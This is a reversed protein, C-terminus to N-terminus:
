QFCEPFQFYKVHMCVFTNVLTVACTTIRMSIIVTDSNVVTHRSLTPLKTLSHHSIIVFYMIRISHTLVSTRTDHIRNDKANSIILQNKIQGEAIEHGFM